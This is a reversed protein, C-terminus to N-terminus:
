ILTGHFDTNYYLLIDCVQDEENEIHNGYIFCGRKSAHGHLDVYFAVGSEHPPITLYDGAFPTYKMDTVEKLAHEVDSNELAVKEEEDAQM